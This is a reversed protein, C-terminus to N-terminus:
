CFKTHAYSSVETIKKGSYTRKLCNLSNTSQFEQMRLFTLVIEMGSENSLIRELNQDIYSDSYKGNIQIDDLLRQSAVKIFEESSREGVYYFATASLLESSRCSMLEIFFIRM